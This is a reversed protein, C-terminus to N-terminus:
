VFSAIRSLRFLLLGTMGPLKGAKRIMVFPVDLALALPPGFIFGRAEFGTLPQPGHRILSPIPNPRNFTPV